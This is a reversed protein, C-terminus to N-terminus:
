ISWKTLALMVVMFVFFISFHILIRRPTLVRRAYDRGMGVLIVTSLFLFLAQFYQNLPVFLFAWLLQWLILIIVAPFLRFEPTQASAEILPDTRGARMAQRVLFFGIVIFVLSAIAESLGFISAGIRWGTSFFEFAFLLVLIYLLFEFAQGRHIFILDKIGLILYFAVGLAIAALWSFPLTASFWLFVLFALGLSLPRFFPIFYFGLAVLVFVWFPLLSWCAVMILSKLILGRLSIANRLFNRM